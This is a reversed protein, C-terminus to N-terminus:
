RSESPMAFTIRFCAGHSAAVASLRADNSQCLERAVHLGLGIGEGGTTYFPELMRDSVTADIGPGNDMIDLCFAGHENHHGTLLVQLAVDPRRAYHESNHWLNILVRRLHAPNFQVWQAPDIDEVAIEAPHERLERYEAVTEALWPKLQLPRLGTNDQRSQGMVDDVIRDIRQSHRHVMALLRRDEDALAPSEALLQTAHSIASLPNRIEHAIGASLRGLAALKLQQAQESQRQLDELFILIPVGGGAQGAFTPLVSFTPLLSRGDPQITRNSDGPARLWGQLADDLALSTERLPTDTDPAANLGLLRVAAANTLQIRHGGDLAVAGIEMQEIIRQNLASLNQLTRSHAAVMAESSRVRRALWQALGAVVFFLAGLIGTPFLMSTAGALLLPRLVEQILIALTALAAILAANRLQLMAGSCAVPVILLTGMGSGVGSSAFCLCTIFGIDLVSFLEVQRSLRPWRVLTCVVAAGSCLLYLASATDFLTVRGVAVVPEILPSFRMGILGTAVLCRYANITSVAQWDQRHRLHKGILRPM